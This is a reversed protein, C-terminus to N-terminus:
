VPSDLLVLVFMIVVILQVSLETKVLIRTANIALVGTLKVIIGQIFNLATALTVIRMLIFLKMIVLQMMRVLAQVQTQLALCNLKM